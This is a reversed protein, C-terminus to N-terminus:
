RVTRCTQEKDQGPPMRRCCDDAAFRDPLSRLNLVVRLRTLEPLRDQRSLVHVSRRSELKHDCGRAPPSARLGPRCSVQKRPHIMAAAPLCHGTAGTGADVLLGGPIDERRRAGEAEPWELVARGDDRALARAPVARPAISREPAGPM